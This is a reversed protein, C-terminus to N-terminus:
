VGSPWHIQRKQCRHASGRRPSVRGLSFPRQYRTHLLASVGLFVSGFCCNCFGVCKDHLWFHGGGPVHQLAICVWCLSVLLWEVNSSRSLLMFLLRSTRVGFTSHLVRREVARATWPFARELGAPYTNPHRTARFVEAAWQGGHILDEYLAAVDVEAPLASQCVVPFAVSEPSQSRYITM